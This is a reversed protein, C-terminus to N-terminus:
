QRDGASKSFEPENSKAKDPVGIHVRITTGRGRQSAIHIVGEALHAREEMSVLGIGSSNKRVAEVDFGNGDDSITLDVDHTSASISLSLHRPDGHVAANGLAEQSIRFLCLAATNSVRALDGEASYSVQVDYRREIEICCAELAPGLGVHRLTSPHLDHSLNRLDNALRANREQLHELADDIYSKDKHHRLASLALGMMAVEQGFGDHLDRAIRSREAEQSTILRGALDRNRDLAHKQETVDRVISLVRDTDARVLRAEYHHPRDILLEYEVVIAQETQCAREVGDMLKDVLASPMIDHIKKGIFTNPPAFLLTPERAHYDLYTGDRSMVFMLDPIARLLASNRAESNRTREEARRRRGRQVVLGAILAAQAAFVMLGAVVYRRYLEFFSQQRFLVISGAPVRSEPINWRRLQRWDILTSYTARGAPVDRTKAGNAISRAMEAMRRGDVESNWVYGGLIGRGVYAESYGFVPVRSARVVQALAEIPSANQSRTRMFQRIFLVVSHEPAAAVRSVVDALPLDRLYVLGLRRSRAKLQLEVETQIDGNNELSGDIVLVSQTDPRVSLALDITGNIFLGGQLGTVNDNRNLQGTSPGLAVIPPNGLMERTQRALTLPETGLTVIVDIKRDAYKNKLFDQILRFQEPGPFRATEFSEDYLEIQTSDASAMVKIFADEFRPPVPGGIAGQHLILIHKTVPPMMVPAAVSATPLVALCLLWCLAAVQVSKM